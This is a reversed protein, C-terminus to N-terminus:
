AIFNVPSRASLFQAGSESLQERDSQPIFTGIRIVAASKRHTSRLRSNMLRRMPNACLSAPNELRM